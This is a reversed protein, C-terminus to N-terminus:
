SFFSENLEALLLEVEHNDCIEGSSTDIDGKKLVDHVVVKRGCQLQKDMPSTSCCSCTLFSAGVGDDGRILEPVDVVQAGIDTLLEIILRFMQVIGIDDRIADNWLLNDVHM